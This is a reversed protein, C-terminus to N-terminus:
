RECKLLTVMKAVVCQVLHEKTDEKLNVKCDREMTRIDCMQNDLVSRHRKKRKKLRRYLKMSEELVSHRNFMVGGDMADSDDLNLAEVAKYLVMYDRAKKSCSRMQSINLVSKNDTSVKVLKRFSAKNQKKSMPSRQYHMKSLGWGYEIGEGAIEPHCKPSRELTVGLRVAHYQLLTMEATFDKQLTMLENISYTDGRSKGIYDSKGKATYLHICAPNIWGREYLVQLSGKPKGVWGEKVVKETFRIPLNRNKCMEQLKEKSGCPNDIGDKKLAEILDYKLIEKERTRGTDVDYKCKLADSQSLYCPGTDHESFQMSQTDGVQYKYDANHYPGFYSADELKTDRMKPQKGGYRIRIKNLNLGNPRMRDHRNSHDLFIVFDFDPFMFTLIDICDELQTVMHNYSWYGDGNKGYELERVFPTDTLDGKMPGGNVITAAEKDSYCTGRRKNNVEALINPPVSFGFGLERSTFASLMVGQGEDKPNLPKAGDPMTWSFLTLLKQKMIAEDQGFMM